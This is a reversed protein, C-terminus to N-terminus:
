VRGLGALYAIDPNGSTNAVTQLYQRISMYQGGTDPQALAGPGAGPGFQAGATVPQDPNLTGAGLPTPPPPMAMAGQGSGGSATPSGSPGAAQPLPAMRQQDIVEQGQGYPLGTVPRIPQTPGGDTRKSLSGPGSVVAPKKPAQYGGAPM